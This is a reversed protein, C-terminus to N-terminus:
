PIQTLPTAFTNDVVVTAGARKAAGIVAPLDVVDLMPNTPSEIWVLTGADAGALSEVTLAPHTEHGIQGRAQRERLLSAVGFYPAAQGIVKTGSPLEDLIAATAALGSAFTVCRGHELLGLADELASWGPNGDRGYEVQTGFHFTSAPMLPANLPSGAERAPRGSVVAITEPHLADDNM